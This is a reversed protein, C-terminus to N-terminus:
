EMPQCQDISPYPHGENHSLHPRCPCSGLLLLRGPSCLFGLVLKLICESMAPFYSFFPHWKIWGYPGSFWAM